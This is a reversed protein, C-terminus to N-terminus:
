SQATSHVTSTHQRHVGRAQWVGCSHALKQLGSQKLITHGCLFLRRDRASAELDLGMLGPPKFQWLNSMPKIGNRATEPAQFTLFRWFKRAQPPCKGGAAGAAPWGEFFGAGGRAPGARPQLRLSRFHKDATIPRFSRFHGM